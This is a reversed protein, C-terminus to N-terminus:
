GAPLPAPASSSGPAALPTPGAPSSTRTSAVRAVTAAGQVAPQEQSVSHVALVRTASPRAKQPRQRPTRRRNAAVANKPAAASASHHRNARPRSPKATRASNDVATRLMPTGSPGRALLLTAVLVAGVAGGAAAWSLRLPLRLRTSPASGADRHALGLERAWFGIGGYRSAAVYLDARGATKFERASPWARRGACFRELEARIRASTWRRQPAGPEETLRYRTSRGGGVRELAGATVLDALDYAAQSRSMGTLEQYASRTLEKLRGNSLAALAQQQAPKLEIRASV